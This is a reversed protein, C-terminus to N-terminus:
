QPKALYVSFSLSSNQILLKANALKPTPCNIFRAWHKCQVATATTVAATFDGPM